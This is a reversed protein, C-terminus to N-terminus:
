QHIITPAEKNGILHTFMMTSVLRMLTPQLALGWVSGPKGEVSGDPLTGTEADVQLDPPPFSCAGGKRIPSDREYDDYNDKSESGRMPGESPNVEGIERFFKSVRELVETPSVNSPPIVTPIDSPSMPSYPVGSGIQMKRVMGPILCPPFLPYPQLKETVGSTPPPLQTAASASPDPSITGRQVPFSNMPQGRIMENEPGRITEQDYVEKSAWFQLIKQLRSRNEEKNQPNHYIRALMSGLVPRFALAENDLEHPTSRRKIRPGYYEIFKQLSTNNHKEYFQQDM